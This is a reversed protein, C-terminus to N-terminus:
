ETTGSAASVGIERGRTQDRHPLMTLNFFNFFNFFLVLFSIFQYKILAKKTKISNVLVHHM